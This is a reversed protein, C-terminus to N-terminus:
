MTTNAQWLTLIFGLTSHGSIMDKKGRMKLDFHSSKQTGSKWIMPPWVNQPWYISFGRMFDYLGGGLQPGIHYIMTYGTATM